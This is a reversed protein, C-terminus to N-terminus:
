IFNPNLVFDWKNLIVLFM